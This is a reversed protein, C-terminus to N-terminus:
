AIRGALTQMPLTLKRPTDDFSAMAGSEITKLEAEHGDERARRLAAWARMFQILQAPSWHLEITFKPTQLEEFSMGVESAPYGRWSLRNDDSWYPEIIDRVPKIITDWIDAQAEINHYTWAMFLADKRAVRAAEKWFKPLDFWHLAIAVTVADVSNNPLRSSHSPAAMYDINPAPKAHSIQAADIDTAHVHTFRQALSLAAQGSGTGVDWVKNQAPSNQAIWDFLAEPYSPRASAYIDAQTGFSTANKM